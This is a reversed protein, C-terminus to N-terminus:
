HFISVNGDLHKRDRINTNHFVPFSHWPNKLCDKLWVGIGNSINAVLLLWFFKRDSINEGLGFLWKNVLINRYLPFYYVNIVFMTHNYVHWITGITWFHQDQYVKLITFAFCRKNLYILEDFRCRNSFLDHYSM